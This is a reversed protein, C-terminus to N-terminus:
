PKQNLNKTIKRVDLGNVLKHYSNIHKQGKSIADKADELVKIAKDIDKIADELKKDAMSHKNIIEDKFEEVKDEFNSVDINQEQLRSIEQKYSITNQALNRILTIIPIFSTPRVVYMKPYKHSMDVIGENYLDSDKELMSVLIAYECNKERRDKDLEKLFDENKHKTATEDAENKMEFMISVYEEGNEDYDRFIFDGKSGTRADNDKEFYAGPFLPRLSNFKNNCFVELSEGIMKTSQRAKFDKYYAVEEEKLNLKNQLSSIEKEKELIANKVALEQESKSQGLKNELELIKISDEQVKNINELDKKHLEAAYKKELDAAMIKLEQDKEKKCQELHASIEKQFEEDKVQKAISEYETKEVPIVKHCHPCKLEKM